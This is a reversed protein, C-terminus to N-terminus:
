KEGKILALTGVMFPLKLAAPIFSSDKTSVFDIKVIDWSKITRLLDDPKGFMREIYFLDQLVFKGGKKLVRLAEKILSVKDQSGKVEHFVLNSVVVAFKGDPFPLSSASAKQFTVREGVREAEANQQCVKQSYEWNGGWYDTGVVTSSPFKKAIGVTLAASGCGIDIAEGNGDWEINELVLDRVKEQVNRGRWSFLYRAYLFYAAALAFFIAPILFLLTLISLAALILVIITPALIIRTSVWNGYNVQHAKEKNMDSKRQKM